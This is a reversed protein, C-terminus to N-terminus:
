KGSPLLGKLPADDSAFQYPGVFQSEFGRGFVRREPSTWIVEDNRKAELAYITVPAFAYQWWTKDGKSCAELMLVAEPDNSIAYVFVAGDTVNKSEDTYRFVPQPMLRLPQRVTEKWGHDDWLKFERAINRMQTTRAVKKDSPPSSGELESFEITSIESKWMVHDDRLLEFPQDSTVHFEHIM